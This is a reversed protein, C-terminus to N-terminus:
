VGILNKIGEYEEVHRRKKSKPSHIAKNNNNRIVPKTQIEESPADIYM